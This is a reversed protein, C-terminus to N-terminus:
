LRGELLLHYGFAVLVPFASFFVFVRFAERLVGGPDRQLGRKIASLTIPGSQDIVRWAQPGLLARLVNFLATFVRECFWLALFTSGLYVVGTFFAANTGFGRGLLWGAFLGYLGDALFDYRARTDTEGGLLAAAGRLVYFALMLYVLKLHFFRQSFADLDALQGSAILVGATLLYGAFIGNAVIVLRTLGGALIVFPLALAIFGYLVGLALVFPRAAPDSFRPFVEGFFERSLAPPASQLLLIDIPSTTVQSASLWALPFFIGLYLAATAAAGISLTLNGHSLEAEFLAPDPPTQDRSLRVERAIERLGDNLSRAM